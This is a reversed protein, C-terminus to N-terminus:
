RASFAVRFGMFGCIPSYSRYQFRNASRVDLTKTHMHGGRNVRSTGTSPGPPNSRPSKGYYDAGYWDSCWEAVNGSMDYLGLGNPQKQGVPHTKCGSGSNKGYWAYDGLSSESSTGAWQENKGGSRAAYEWEAETPLRYNQGSTSNLKGIFDQVDNWLVKEVPHEDGKLYSPNSGVIKQYQAQTVEYKGIYLDDVCVEHVPQEDASGDNSGMQYCGGKVLVFEMGTTPDTYTSGAVSGGTASPSAQPHLEFGPIFDTWGVVPWFLPLLVLLLCLIYLRRM